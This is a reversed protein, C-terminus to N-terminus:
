CRTVSGAPLDGRVTQFTVVIRVNVAPGSKKSAVVNWRGPCQAELAPFHQLCAMSKGAVKCDSALSGRTSYQVWLRQGYWTQFHVSLDASAGTEVLVDYTHTPPSLAVITFSATSHGSALHLEGSQPRSTRGALSTGSGLQAKSLGTHAVVAVGIGIAFLVAVTTALFARM